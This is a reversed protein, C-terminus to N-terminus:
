VTGRIKDLGHSIRDIFTSFQKKRSKDPEEEMWAHCQSLIYSAKFQFHTHVVSEFLPDCSELAPIISYQVTNFRQTYKYKNAEREAGPWSHSGPENYFPDGVLILGQISLLVQMINSKGPQWGPGSWTGLLSLCVHGCAYLNPNFTVKGGGTTLFHVKPPQIPYSDGLLIDFLFIGNEYPTNEPGVILARIADARTIDIRLFISSEWDLPLSTNLVTMEHSIARTRSKDWMVKRTDKLEKRYHFTSLLNAEEFQLPRLARQYTEVLESPPIKLTLKEKSKVDDSEDFHSHLELESLNKAVKMQTLRMAARTRIASGSSRMRIDKIFAKIKKHLFQRQVDAKRSNVHKVASGSLSATVSLWDHQLTKGEWLSIKQHLTEYAKRVESVIDPLRASIQNKVGVELRIRKHKVEKQDDYLLHVGKRIIFDAQTDLTQLDLMISGPTEWRRQIAFCDHKSERSCLLPLFDACESLTLLFLLLTQLLDSKSAIGIISDNKVIWKLSTYLLDHSCIM